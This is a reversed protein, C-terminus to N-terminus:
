QNFSITHGCPAHIERPKDERNVLMRENDLREYCKKCLYCHNHGNNVEFPVPCIQLVDEQRLGDINGCGFCNINFLISNYSRYFDETEIQNRHYDDLLRYYEEIPYGCYPDEDIIYDEIESDWIINPEEEEEYYDESYDNRNSQSEIQPQSQSEIEPVTPVPLALTSTDISWSTTAPVVPASTGMTPFNQDNVVPAVPKKPIIVPEPVIRQRNDRRNSRHRQDRQDRRNDRTYRPGPNAWRRNGVPPTPRSPPIYQAPATTNTSSMSASSTESSTRPGRRKRTITTWGSM